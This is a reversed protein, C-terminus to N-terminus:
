TSCINSINVKSEFARSSFIAAEFTLSVGAWFHDFFKALAPFGFGQPRLALGARDVNVGPGDRDSSAHSALPGRAAALQRSSPCPDGAAIGSCPSAPGWLPFGEPARVDFPQCTRAGFM